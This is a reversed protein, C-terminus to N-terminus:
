SRPSPWLTPAPWVPLQLLRVSSEYIDALAKLAKIETEYERVNKANKISFRYMEIATATDRDSMAYDGMKLTLGPVLAYDSEHGDFHASYQSKSFVEKAAPADDVAEYCLGKLYLIQSRFHPNKLADATPYANDLADIASNYEGMDMLITAKEIYRRAIINRRGLKLEYIISRDIYALAEDYLGLRHFMQAINYLTNTVYFFDEGYYDVAKITLNCYKAASEHNGKEVHCCGLISWAKVLSLTDHQAELEPVVDKELISVAADYRGARYLSDATALGDAAQLNGSLLLGLM